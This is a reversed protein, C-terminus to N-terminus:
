QNPWLAASSVRLSDQRIATLRGLGSFDLGAFGDDYMDPRADTIAELSDWSDYGSHIVFCQFSDPGPM